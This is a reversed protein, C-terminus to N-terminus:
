IAGRLDTIAKVQFNAPFGLEESTDHGSRQIWFTTFGASGAGQVDWGNASVFGIEGKSIELTSAM